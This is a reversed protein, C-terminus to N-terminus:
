ILSTRPGVFRCLAIRIVRRRVQPDVLTVWFHSGWGDNAGVGTSPVGRLSSARRGNLRVEPTPPMNENQAANAGPTPPQEAAKVDQTPQAKTPTDTSTSM